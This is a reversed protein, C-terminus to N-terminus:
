SRWSFRCFSRRFARWKAHPADRLFANPIPGSWPRTARRADRASARQLISIRSGDGSGDEYVRQLEAGGLIECFIGAGEVTINLQKFFFGDVNEESWRGGFHIGAPAMVKTVTSPRLSLSQPLDRGPWKRPTAVTTALSKWM